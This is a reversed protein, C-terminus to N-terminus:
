LIPIFNPTSQKLSTGQSGLLFGTCDQSSPQPKKALTKSTQKPNKQKTKKTAEPDEPTKRRRDVIGEQTGNVQKLYTRYSSAKKTKPNATARQTKMSARALIITDRGADWVLSLLCFGLGRSKRRTSSPCHKLAQCSCPQAFSHKGRQYLPCITHADRSICLLPTWPTTTTDSWQGAAAHRSSDKEPTARHAQKTGLHTTVELFKTM